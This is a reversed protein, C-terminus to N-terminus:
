ETTHDTINDAMCKLIIKKCKTLKDKVCTLNHNRTVKTNLTVDQKTGKIDSDTIINGQQDGKFSDYLPDALPTSLNEDLLVAIECAVQHVECILVEDSDVRHLYRNAFVQHLDAFLQLLFVGKPSAILKTEDERIKQNVLTDLFPVIIRSSQVCADLFGALRTPGWNLFHVNNMELIDCAENLIDMSKASHAFHKLLARLNEYLNVADQQSHNVSTCLNRVTGSASHFSCTSM